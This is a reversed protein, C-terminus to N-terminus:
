TLSGTASRSYFIFYLIIGYFVTAIMAFIPTFHGLPALIIVTLWHLVIITRSHLQIPFDQQRCIVALGTLNWGYLSAFSHVRLLFKMNQPDYSPLLELIIYAIGTIATFLLFVMGSTLFYKQQNKKGQKEFLYFILVVTFFLIFTVGVQPLLKEFLILLFFVIVGLNVSWFGFNKWFCYGNEKEREEEMLSFMVSMTILSIPFSFGLFFTDLQLKKMTLLKLYENNLIVLSSIILGLSLCLLAAHHFKISVPTARSFINLPLFSFRRVRIIEVLLALLLSVIMAPIYLHLFALIAYAFALALFLTTRQTLRGQNETHYLLITGGSCLNFLFIHLREFNIPQGVAPVLHHMFGFALATVMLTNLVIKINNNM